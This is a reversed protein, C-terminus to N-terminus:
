CASHWPSRAYSGAPVRQRTWRTTQFHSSRARRSRWTRRAASGPWLKTLLGGATWHTPSTRVTKLSRECPTPPADSLEKGLARLYTEAAEPLASNTM